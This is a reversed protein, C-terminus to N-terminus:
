AAGRVARKVGAIMEERTPFMAPGKSRGDTPSATIKRWGQSTEVSVDSFFPFTETPATFRIKM